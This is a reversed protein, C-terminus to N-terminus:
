QAATLRKLGEINTQSTSDAQVCENRLLKQAYHKLRQEVNKVTHQQVKATVLSFTNHKETV